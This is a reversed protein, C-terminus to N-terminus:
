VGLKARLAAEVEEFASKWDGRVKQRFLTLTPYWPCDARDMLWRWDPVQKVILWTPRALMGALHVLATDTSIILDLSQMVAATDVFADPGSDLEAGFREIKMDQPLVNAPDTEDVKQLSILRVGPIKAIGRFHFGSFSRRLREAYGTLTGQWCIGIKFGDSGLREKWKEVREPEAHLYPVDAPITKLTTKFALPLSMLPTYFDFHEPTDDAGIIEITPSLSKLLQHLPKQAALIVRAGREEALKAYRCFQIMDGLYLEPYIFLTKGAIDEEGLWVPQKYDRKKAQIRRSNRHEYGPLGNEYDGIALYCNAQNWIAPSFPEKSRKKAEEYSEIAEPIRNLDRLANGRSYWPQVSEPNLDRAKEFNELAEECRDEDLLLAGRSLYARDWDPALAVAKDYNELATLPRKLLRLCNGRNFWARSLKPDLHVLKDYCGLAEAYRKAQYLIQAKNSLAVIMKPELQLAKNFSRLALQPRKLAKLAEGLNNHVRAVRPNAEVARALLKAAREQRGTRLCVGGLLALAAFHEPNRALLGECIAEAEGRKGQKLLALARQIPVGPRIGQQVTAGRAALKQGPASM